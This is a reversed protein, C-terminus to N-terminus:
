KCESWRFAPKSVECLIPVNKWKWTFARELLEAWMTVQDAPVSLVLEDHVVGRLYPRANHGAEDAMALFRLLSQCVIDRAAGQGVLAPGQTWAREPNPRLKRGFGNDLLRGAAAEQRVENIYEVLRPYNEERARIAQEVVELPIGNMEATSKAAGGYNLKHNIAKTQQRTRPTLQGFYVVAMESHADRGPEFLAMYAPDQSLGAMARMDVQSADVAILMHGPDAVLVAREEKAAGRIGINTISPKTMAWRGSGQADGIWAHVRGRDTVYKAIEAYKARAGTAQNIAEVIRRV